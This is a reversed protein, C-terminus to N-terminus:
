AASRFLRTRTPRRGLHVDESTSRKLAMRNNRLHKLACKGWDVGFTSRPLVELSPQTVAQCRDYGRRLGM